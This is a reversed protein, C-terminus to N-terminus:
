GTKHYISKGPVFDGCRARREDVSTDQRVYFAVAPKDPPTYPGCGMASFIISEGVAAVAFGLCGLSVALLYKEHVLKLMFPSQNEYDARQDVMETCRPRM